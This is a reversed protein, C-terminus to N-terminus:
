LLSYNHIGVVLVLIFNCHYIHLYFLPLAPYDVPHIYITDDNISTLCKARLLMTFLLTQNTHSRIRKTYCKNKGKSTM